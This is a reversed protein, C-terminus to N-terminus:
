RPTISEFRANESRIPNSATYPFYVNEPRNYHFYHYM